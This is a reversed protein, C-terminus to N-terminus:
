IGCPHPKRFLGDTVHFVVAQSTPHGKRGRGKRWWEAMQGTPSLARLIQRLSDSYAAGCTRRLRFQGSM